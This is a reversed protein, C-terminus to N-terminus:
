IIYLLKRGSDFLCIDLHQKLRYTSAAKIECIVIVAVSLATEVLVRRCFHIANFCLRTEFTVSPTKKKKLLPLWLPCNTNSITLCVETLAAPWFYLKPFHDTHWPCLQMKKKKDLNMDRVIKENQSFDKKVKKAFNWLHSSQDFLWTQKDSAQGSQLSNYGRVRLLARLSGGLGTTWEELHLDAFAFKM